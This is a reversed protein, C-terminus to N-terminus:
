LRCFRPLHLRLDRTPDANEQGGPIDICYNANHTDGLNQALAVEVTEASASSIISFLGILVLVSNRFIFM